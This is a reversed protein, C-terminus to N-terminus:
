QARSGLADVASAIMGRWHKTHATREQKGSRPLGPIAGPERKARPLAM